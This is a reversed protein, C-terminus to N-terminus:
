AADRKDNRESPVIETIIWINAEYSGTETLHQGMNGTQPCLSDNAHALPQTLQQPPM